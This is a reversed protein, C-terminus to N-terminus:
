QNFPNMEDDAGTMRRLFRSLRDEVAIMYTYPERVSSDPHKRDKQKINAILTNYNINGAQTM